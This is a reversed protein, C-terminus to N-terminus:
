LGDAQKVSVYPYSFLNYNTNQALANMNKAFMVTCVAMIILGIKWRPRKIYAGGVRSNESIYNENLYRCIFCIEICIGFMSFLRNVLLTYGSFLFFFGCNILYMNYLYDYFDYGRIKKYIYWILSLMVLRYLNAGYSLRIEFRGALSVPLVSHIFNLIGTQAIIIGIVFAAICFFYLYKESKKDSHVFKALWFILYYLATVLLTACLVSGIIYRVYKKEELWPLLCGGWICMVLGQRMASFGYTLIFTPFLLLIAMCEKRGSYRKIFRFLLISEVSAVLFVLVRFDAGMVSVFKSFILWGVEVHYTGREAVLEQLTHRESFKFWGEYGFYDTGQGYRFALMYFVFIIIGAFLVNIKKYGFKLTIRTGNMDFVAAVLIAIFAVWYLSFNM